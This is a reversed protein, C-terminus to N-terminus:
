SNLPSPDPCIPPCRQGEEVIVDDGSGEASSASSSSPLLDQNDANVAVVVAHLQLNLDMGYYLRLGECGPTALLKDFAARNFTESLPLIDKGKYDQALINERNNRYTSTMEVAQSLTIFHSNTPLPTNSNSM